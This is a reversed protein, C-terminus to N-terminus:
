AHWHLQAAAVLDLLLVKRRDRRSFGAEGVAQGFALGARVRGRHLGPRHAVAVVPDEVSRLGPDRVGAFGLVVRDHGDGVGVTRPSPVDRGEDDLLGILAEGESLLLALEADLARRSAFQEEVVDAQRSVPDDPLGALTELDGQ